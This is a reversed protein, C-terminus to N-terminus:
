SVYYDKILEIRTPHRLKRLDKAEIQRARERTVGLIEGIEDLTYEYFVFDENTYNM